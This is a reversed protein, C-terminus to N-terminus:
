KTQEAPLRRIRINLWAFIVTMLPSIYCFFAFPLYAVTAVGLVGAQTAGCTNWPVLVSTVTASDELTRSLVEPRLRAQRFASRFMRGPIIISMFQDGMAVNFLICTSAATTVVGGTGHVRQLIAGTLRELFRAAEMIGGFIMASVILWVTNMMGAMGRTTLLGSITADDTPIATTGYLSKTLLTYLTSGTLPEGALRELLDMQFILAFVIGILAAFLLAPLAPMKKAILVIVLVPVIFLWPTIVFNEAIAAQTEAISAMESGGGMFFTIGTFLLITIIVSPVTTTMMYRIHTFLDVGATAAALNTTDSLPSVKDGFYAGSIIAGAVIPESFGLAKGIGLLAVGVTAITSWSSGTALSIVAAIIVTAPLFFEPRLIDLGYYIMAPIVGSVMWAGSLMGIMLLILIASMSSGITHLIGNLLKEWKVRNYLAIGAAVASALILSLQNAGSLTDDGLLFVNLLILGILLVIPVLSQLVTPRREESSPTM